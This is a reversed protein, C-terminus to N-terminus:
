LDIFNGDVFLKIEEGNEKFGSVELDSSGFMFDVHNVSVNFGKEELEELTMNNANKLNMPYANGLALHCSANEDFLTNYFLINRNSIPSDYSILAVEGLRKSGQDSNLLLELYEKGKKADFNIVEGNNFDLYFEDIINGQYVLPKTSYVRGYVKNKDPMTFIEETPINAAFYVGNLSKEGGGAWIHDKVLYVKLNTGLSNKFHLYEFNFKNMKEAKNELNDIHKKFESVPDNDSTVRSAYLIDDLLKDFALDVPLEPYVKKAWIKSPYGVVCWQSSSAMMYDSYKKLAINSTNNAIKIKEVDVGKLLEPNPSTISISAVNNDMFYDFKKIIYDPIEKFADKDQLLYKTRTVENDSYDVLVEKAGSLYACKVIERVLDKAEIDSKIQLIQGQKINIGVKVILEAYKKIKNNM